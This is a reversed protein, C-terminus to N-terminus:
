FQRWHIGGFCSFVYIERSRSYGKKKENKVDKKKCKKRNKTQKQTRRKKM